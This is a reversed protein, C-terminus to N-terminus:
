KKKGVMRDIEVSASDGDRLELPGTEGYLDGPRPQATGARSIRAAIVVRNGPALRRDPRMAMTDDLWVVSPLAGAKKRVVALPMRPGSPARALVFLTDDDAVRQRMDPALEVRVKISM